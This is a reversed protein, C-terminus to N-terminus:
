LFSDLACFIVRAEEEDSVTEELGQWDREEAPAPNAMTDTELTSAVMQQPQSTVQHQLPRTTASTRKLGLRPRARAAKTHYLLDSLSVPSVVCALDTM